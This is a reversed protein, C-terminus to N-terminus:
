TTPKDPSSFRGDPETILTTIAAMEESSLRRSLPYSPEQTEYTMSDHKEGLSLHSDPVSPANGVPHRCLHAPAPRKRM